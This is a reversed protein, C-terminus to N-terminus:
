EFEFRIDTRPPPSLPMLHFSFNINASFNNHTVNCLAKLGAFRTAKTSYKVRVERQFQFLVYFMNKVHANICSM